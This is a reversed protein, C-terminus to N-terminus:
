AVRQRDLIRRIDAVEAEDYRSLVAHLDDLDSPTTYAALERQLTKRAARKARQTRLEDRVTTWLAPRNTDAALQETQTRNM